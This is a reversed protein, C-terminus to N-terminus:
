DRKHVAQNSHNGAKAVSKEPMVIEAPFTMVRVTVAVVVLDPVATMWFLDVPTVTVFDSVDVEARQKSFASHITSSKSSFPPSTEKALKPVTVKVPVEAVVLEPEMVAEPAVMMSMSCFLWTRVETEVLEDPTVM